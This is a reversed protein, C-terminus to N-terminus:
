NQVSLFEERPIGSSKIVEGLEKENNYTSATDFRRYGAQIGCSIIETFRDKPLYATGFGVIPMEVGNNLTIDPVIKKM